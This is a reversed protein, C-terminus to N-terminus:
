VGRLEAEPIEEKIIKLMRELEEKSYASLAEDGIQEGADSYSQLFYRKAGRLYRALEMLDEPKHLERSVTTRFEYDVRGEKLLAISRAVPSPDFDARGITEPYKELTNKVDMAVYDVLNRDILDKLREPFSGNTDLKLLFGREKIKRAFDRLDSMLPEGGTICVGDLTGKRTDLFRFFKEEPWETIEDRELFVLPANYCFPCRFNCGGLFVTCAVKSPFDLLTLKQLGCIKM